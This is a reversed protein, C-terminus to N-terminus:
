KSFPRDSRRPALKSEDITKPKWSRAMEVDADVNAILAPIDVVGVRNYLVPQKYQASYVRAYDRWHRLAAELSRVAAAQDPAAATLDFRSQRLIAFAFASDPLRSKPLMHDPIIVIEFAADIVDM